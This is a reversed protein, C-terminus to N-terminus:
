WPFFDVFVFVFEDCRHMDCFSPHGCQWTRHLSLLLLSSVQMWVPIASGHTIFSYLINSFSGVVSFVLYSIGTKVSKYNLLFKAGFDGLWQNGIWMTGFINPGSIVVDNTGFEGPVLFVQDLFWLKTGFDSPGSNVQHHTVVQLCELLESQLRDGPDYMRMVLLVSISLRCFGTQARCFQIKTVCFQIKNCPNSNQTVFNFKTARFHIKHWLISNQTM